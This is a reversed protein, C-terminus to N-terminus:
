SVFNFHLPNDTFLLELNNFHSDDQELNFKLDQFM